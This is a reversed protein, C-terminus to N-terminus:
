FVFRLWELWVSVNMVGMCVDKDIDVISGLNLDFVICELVM